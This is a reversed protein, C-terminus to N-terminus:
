IRNILSAFYAAGFGNDINVTAIGGTCNCLMGFLATFGGLNAGYGISTPVAIVPKDVMSAVFSPLAGEMGAVVILVRADKIKAKFDIIRHFGAIGVDCILEVNNGLYRCCLEAERAVPYDSSGAALVLINGKGTIKLEKNQLFFVRSDKDYSSNSFSKKLKIADSSKLRTVIVNEKKENFKMMIAKIDRFLKGEGYVVEPLARRINRHMDFKVNELAFYPLDKIREYAEELAIKNEKLEKLLIKLFDSNM